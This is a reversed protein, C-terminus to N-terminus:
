ILKFIDICHLTAMSAEQFLDDSSVGNVRSFKMILPKYMTLIEEKSANDGSKAECLLQKFTM